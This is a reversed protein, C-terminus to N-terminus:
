RKKAVTFYTPAEMGHWYQYWHYLFMLCNIDLELVFLIFYISGNIVFYNEIGIISPIIQSTMERLMYVCDIDIWVFYAMLKQCKQLLLLYKLSESSLFHFSISNKLYSFHLGQLIQSFGVRSKGTLESVM